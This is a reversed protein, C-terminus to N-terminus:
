YTGGVGNAIDTSKDVVFFNPNSAFGGGTKISNWQVPEREDSSENEWNEFGSNEFQAQAFTTVSIAMLAIASYFKKM